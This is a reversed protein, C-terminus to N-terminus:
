KFEILQDLRCREIRCERSGALHNELFELRTLPAFNMGYWECGAMGVEAMTAYWHLDMLPSNM